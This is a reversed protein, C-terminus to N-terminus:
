NEVLKMKEDFYQDLAKQGKAGGLAELDAVCEAEHAKVQQQM